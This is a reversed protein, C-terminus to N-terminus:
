DEKIMEISGKVPIKITYVKRKKNTLSIDRLWPNYYKLIKYNIDHNFAFDTWNDVSSNVEVDTTKLPAYLDEKSINYGYKEPHLFIEKIAIIRAVYRSTEESLLLNYYNKVRQKEIQKELGNNGMNYAAAVLTWSKFNNYSDLLYQCAAETSKEVNYREDVEDDVELGYKKAVDETLQWFGTAGAQSITNYLNSEVVPLYKFDDPIKNAKLIPEIVPFWRNARKLGLITASYWYANVLFEREIREKVEFNEVPVREGAFETNDPVKPTTVKFVYGSDQVSSTKGSDTDAQRNAAHIGLAVLLLVGMGMGSFFLIFNPKANHLLASITKM